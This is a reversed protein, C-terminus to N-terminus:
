FYTYHWTATLQATASFVDASFVIASTGNAPISFWEARTLFPRRDGSGGLLVTRAFPSTDITIVDGPALTGNYRLQRGTSQETITPNVLYDAGASIQYVPWAPASGLNTLAMVGSAGAAGWDLGTTDSWDLGIPQFLTNDIDVFQAVAVTGCDISVTAFAARNPPILNASKLTTFTSTSSVAGTSTSSSSIFIAGADFWNVSMSSAAMAASPKVDATFKYTRGEVVAFTGSSQIGTNTAVTTSTARGTFSGVSGGAVRSLTSANLGAWGSTDTEFSPNAIANAAEAEDWNLGGSGPSPLGTIASQLDTAYKMPDIAALQITFAFATENLRVIDVHELEVFRYKTGSEETVDMQYLAEADPCLAQLRDEARSRVEATPAICHGEITMVKEATYNPARYSGPLFPKPTRKNKTARSSWGHLKGPWYCGEVDTTENANFRIGDLLIQVTEDLGLAM